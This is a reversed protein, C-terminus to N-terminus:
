FVAYPTRMLSQLESTHEESRVVCCIIGSAECIIPTNARTQVKESLREVLGAEFTEDSACFRAVLYPSSIEAEDHHLRQRQRDDAAGAEHIVRIYRIAPALKWRDALLLDVEDPDIKTDARQRKLLLVGIDRGTCATRKPGHEMPGAPEELVRDRRRNLDGRRRRRMGTDIFTRQRRVITQCRNLDRICNPTDPEFRMCNPAGVRQEESNSRASIEPSSHGAHQKPWQDFVCGAAAKLQTLMGHREISKAVACHCRCAGRSGTTEKARGRDIADVAM